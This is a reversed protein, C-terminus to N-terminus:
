FSGHSRARAVDELAIYQAMILIAVITADRTCGPLGAVCPPPLLRFFKWMMVNWISDEVIMLGDLM